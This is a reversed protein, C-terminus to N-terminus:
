GVVEEEYDEEAKLGGGDDAAGADALRPPADVDADCRDKTRVKAAKTGAKEEADEVV